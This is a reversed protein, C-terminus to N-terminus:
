HKKGRSHQDHKQTPTEYYNYDYYYYSGDGHSQVRNLVTGLLRAGSRKIIETTQRLVGVRTMNARVLLLVADALRAILIPDAVVMAPPTDLIVLDAHGRLEEILEIMAPLRLMEAADSRQPGSPMLYLNEAVPVLHDMVNGHRQFLATSVGEKNPQQFVTHLTPRRLDMDVLIVQWGSQALSIGINAATTSKGELPTSSTIMLTRISERSILHELNAGLLRYAEANVSNQDFLAVLASEPSDTIQIVGIVGLAPVETIMEVEAQTKITDSLYEILLVVGIALMLGVLGGELAIISASSAAVPKGIEAEEAISVRDTAQAQALRIQEFRDLLTAYSTRYNALLGQLMAREQNQQPTPTSNGDTLNDIDSQTSAINEKMHDIETQLNDLSETYRASQAQVNQDIFVAAIENSIDAARRPDRDTVTIELLNTDRVPSINVMGELSDSTMPLNLNQIVASLVPRQQMLQAYTDAVRQGQSVQEAGPLVGPAQYVLITTSAKYVTGSLRASSFGIVSGVGGM